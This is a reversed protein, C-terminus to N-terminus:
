VDFLPREGYITDSADSVPTYDDTFPGSTLALTSGAVKVSVLNAAIIGFTDYPDSTSNIAGKVIVSAIKSYSSKSESTAIPRDDFTGFYGDSGASTGAVINTGEITGPGTGTGVKVSGISAYPTLEFGNTDYGALIDANFAAENITVSSIMQGASIRPRSVEVGGSVFQAEFSGLNGGAAVYGSGPGSGGALSGDITVSSINGQASIFGSQSGGGGQLDQGIAVAGINDATAYFGGSSYGSGGEVKGHVTVSAISAGRVQASYAGNGQVNGFVTVAGITGEAFVQGLQDGTEITTDYNGSGGILSGGLTSSGITLSTLKGGSVIKGSEDGTGGQLNRKIKVPGMDLESSITGSGRAIGGIVSGSETDSDKPDGIVVSALKGSSFIQGSDAAGTSGFSGILSKAIFVPGMDGLSGEGQTEIRGSNPGDGGLLSGFIDIRALKGGSIVAGSQAGAGGVLDKAAFINVDGGITVAGLNGTTLISGSGEGYGGRVEAGVYVSSIAANSIVSGSESGYGGEISGEIYVSGLDLESIIAGSEDANGGVLNSEGQTSTGIKVSTIAGSSIIAGSRSSESNYGGIVSGRVYVTGLKGAAGSNLTMIVGSESGYGGEINGYVNIKSISGGTVAGSRMGDGGIIGRGSFGSSISAFGPSEIAGEFDPDGISISSLTTRAYVGGSDDAQGGEIRGGITVSSIDHSSAIRGTEFNGGGIVDHMVTVEGIRGSSLISGARYGAISDGDLPNGIISGLITVKNIPANAASPDIVGEVGDVLVSVPETETAIMGSRTGTGAVIDGTLLITGLGKLSGIAGSEFQSGGILSHATVSKITGQSVVQGSSPGSGGIIDGTITVTGIQVRGPIESFASGAGIAGSNDGAGGKLDGGIKVSGISTFALVTGSRDGADGALDGAITVKGISSVAGISGSEIGIGGLVSGNVTVEKIGDVGVIQGSSVGDGGVINGATYATGIVLSGISGHTFIRGNFAQEAVSQAPASAAKFGLVSGVVTAKGIDGTVFIQGGNMRATGIVSGGIFLTGIKGQPDTRHDSPEPADSDSGRVKLFAGNFDGNITLTRIGGTVLSDFAEGNGWKEVAISKLAATGSNADGANISDLEGDITLKGLDVGTAEIQVVRVFGDGGGAPTSVVSIDAGAFVNTNGVKATLDILTPNGDAGGSLTIASALQAATGKSSTVKVLDGDQDTFSFTVAAPAIRSELVEIGHFTSFTHPNKM